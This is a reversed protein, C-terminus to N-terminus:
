VPIVWCCAAEGCTQFLCFWHAGWVKHQLQVLQNQVLLGRFVNSLCPHKGSAVEWRGRTPCVDQLHSRCSSFRSTWYSRVVAARCFRLKAQLQKMQHNLM